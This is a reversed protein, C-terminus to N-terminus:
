LNMQELVGGLVKLDVAFNSGVETWHGTGDADPDRVEAYVLRLSESLNRFAPTTYSRPLLEIVRTGPRCWTLNALAAGHPALVAEASRFLGIQEVVSRPRDEIVTFGHARGLALVQDENIVSRRHRSRSLYIRPPGTVSAIPALRSQLVQIAPHPVHWGAVMSLVLEEQVAVPSTRRTDIIHTQPIELLELFEREYPAAEAVEFSPYCIRGDGLGKGFVQQYACLKPLIDVVWHYYNTWLHSWLAFARGVNVPSQGSGRLAGRNGYDLDLVRRGITVVGSRTIRVKEGSQLVDLSAVDDRNGPHNWAQVLRVTANKSLLRRGTFLSAPGLAAKGANRATGRIRPGIWSGHTTLRRDDVSASTKVPSESM